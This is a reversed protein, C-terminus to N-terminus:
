IHAGLVPCGIPVTDSVELHNQLQNIVKVVRPPFVAAAQVNPPYYLFHWTSWITGVQVTHSINNITSKHLQQQSWQQSHHPHVPNKSNQCPNRFMQSQSHASSLWLSSVSSFYSLPFITSLHEDNWFEKVIKMYMGNVRTHTNEISIRLQLLACLVSAHSWLLAHFSPMLVCSPMSPVSSLTWAYPSLFLTHMMHQDVALLRNLVVQKM